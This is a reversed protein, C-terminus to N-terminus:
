IVSRYFRFVFEAGGSKGNAATLTGGQSATITRALALGIGASQSSANEGKYFREFVHPLDKKSIGSGTDSVTIETYLPNETVTVTVKGGDPTHETCNKIVNGVAEATWKLDAELTEESCIVELSQGKIDMSILFPECAKNILEKASIKEKSFQVTGADIASLKLLSSILWQMREILLTQSNLLEKRKEKTTNDSAAISSILGMSTLPTKLQHSIDAILESLDEKDKQLADAQERLRVTMKYIESTLVSLEGECYEDMDMKENHFLIGDIKESLKEIERMRKITLTFYIGSITFAACLSVAASVAGGIFGVAGASITLCLCLIFAKRVAADRLIKM